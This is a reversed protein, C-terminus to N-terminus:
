TYTNSNTCTRFHNGRCVGLKFILTDAVTSTYMSGDLGDITYINKKKKKCPVTVSLLFFNDLFHGFTNSVCQLGRCHLKLM